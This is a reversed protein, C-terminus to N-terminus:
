KKDGQTNSTKNVASATEQSTAGSNDTKDQAKASKEAPKTVDKGEKKEPVKELDAWRHSEKKLEAAASDYDVVTPTVLIILETEDKEFSKSTFLAGLIPLDGLIPLKVVNKTEQNSYLGGIAMTQGSSLAIDTEAKRMNLPPIKLNAGLTVQHPSSWDLSSVEAKIKSNIVGESNVEPTIDLKIGYEKWEVTVQGNANSVPIPISGGVLINANEGSVTVMNPQSLVRAAGQSILADLEANIDYYGGLGGWIQGYRKPSEPSTALAQNWTTGSISADDGAPTTYHYTTTWSSNPSQGFKFSGPSTVDNGWKIGLSTSKSKSIEIVKAEIKVQVPNTIELLNVVKDGYASAIKEARDKEYKDMTKGELIITKGAKTVTVDKLGTIRQIESAVSLDNASVDVLYSLQGGAYWIHLTTMGSSKGVLMIETGSIINVDAIEPNAVAVRTVGNYKLIESQNVAVSLTDNALVPLTYIVFVFMAVLIAKLLRHM